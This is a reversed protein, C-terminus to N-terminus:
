RARLQLLLVNILAEQLELKTETELQDNGLADDPDAVLDRRAEIERPKILTEGTSSQLSIRSRLFLSYDIGQALRNVSILRSSSVPTSMNLTSDAEELDDTVEIGQDGLSSILSRKFDSQDVLGSIYMSGLDDRILAESSGRLHYGCASLMLAIIIVANTRRIMM